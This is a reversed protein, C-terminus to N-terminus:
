SGEMSDKLRKAKEAYDWKKRPQKENMAKKELHEIQKALRERREKEVIAADLDEGAAIDIGGIEAIINDWVAGLNLGRLNLRWNKVPRSGSVLVRGACHVALRAQDGHRLVFLMHQDILKSLLVINREDCASTKLTILVVYVATVETDAALAVTQPSIEAIISLRSIQEDFLRREAAKPRFKDFLARKSLQKNILTTAPLGLM